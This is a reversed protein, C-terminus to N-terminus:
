ESGSEGDSCNSGDSEDGEDEYDSESNTANTGADHEGDSTDAMADAAVMKAYDRRKSRGDQMECGLKSRVDASTLQLKSQKYDSPSTPSLGIQRLAAKVQEYRQQEPLKDFGPLVLASVVISKLWVFEEREVSKILQTKVLEM